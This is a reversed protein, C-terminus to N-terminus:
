CDSLIPLNQITTWQQIKTSISKREWSKLLLTNFFIVISSLIKGVISAFTLLVKSIKLTLVLQYENRTPPIVNLIKKKILEMLFLFLLLFVTLLSSKSSINFSADSTLCKSILPFKKPKWVFFIGSICSLFKCIKISLPDAMEERMEFIRLLSLGRILYQESM